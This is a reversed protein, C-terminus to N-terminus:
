RCLISRVLDHSLIQLPVLIISLVFRFLFNWIYLIHYSTDDQLCVAFPYNRQVYTLNIIHVYPLIQHSPM